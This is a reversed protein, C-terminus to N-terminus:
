QKPPIVVHKVGGDTKMKSRDVVIVVQGGPVDPAKYAVTPASDLFAFMSLILYTV